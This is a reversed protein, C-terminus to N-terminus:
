VGPKWPWAPYLGNSEVSDRQPDRGEGAREVDADIARTDTEDSPPATAAAQVPEEAFALADGFWEVERKMADVYTRWGARDDAFLHDRVALALRTYDVQEDLLLAPWIAFSASARKAFEAAKMKPSVAALWAHAALEPHANLLHHVTHHKADAALATSLTQLADGLHLLLARREFADKM